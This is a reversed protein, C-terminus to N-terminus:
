GTSLERPRLQNSTGEITLANGFRWSRAISREPSPHIRTGDLTM